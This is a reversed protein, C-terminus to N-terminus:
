LATLIAVVAEVDAQSTEPGTSIRVTGTAQTGLQQHLWPACHFGARAQVGAASLVSGLELPDYADHTFSLVPTRAPGSAVHLRVGPMESLQQKLWDLPALARALLAGAGRQELWTIAADLGFLAPTNPTGAEFAAPWATPHRDLAVSSGSGGHKQPALELTDAVSVFGLGPPGHLAKHASAVVVDAGLDLPLYGATQSADLLVKAGAERAAAVVSSTDLVEGTVNSAHTLVVLDGGGRRLTECLEEISAAMCVEAGREDRLAQLPRVVSSHEYCTTVVRASSTVMARLTLNLGETAGSCFAVREPRHGTLKAAGARCRQVVAASEATRPGEGRDPSVGVEDFWRQVAAVVEPPKPFSTAAHDLYIM